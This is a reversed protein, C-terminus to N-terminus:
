RSDEFVNWLPRRHLWAPLFLNSPPQCSHLPRQNRLHRSLPGFMERPHLGPQSSVRRQGSVRSPLKSTPRLLGEPLQLCSSTRWARMSLLTRLSKPLLVSNATWTWDCCSFYMKFSIPSFLIFYIIIIFKNTHLLLDVNKCCKLNNIEVLKIWM